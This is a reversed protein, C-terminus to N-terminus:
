ENASRKTVQEIDNVFTRVKECDRDAAIVHAKIFRECVMHHTSFGLNSPCRDEDTVCPNECETCVWWEKEKVPQRRSEPPAVSRKTVQEIGNVFTRVKEYDRDAAIMHAKIFREPVMFLKRFGLGGPCRDEDTVCSSECQTCVWWEKEEVPQRRSEPPAVSRMGISLYELEVQSATEIAERNMQFQREIRDEVSMYLVMDHMHQEAIDKLEDYISQALQSEFKIPTKDTKPM